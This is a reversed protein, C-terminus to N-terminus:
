KSTVGFGENIEMEYIKTEQPAETNSSQEVCDTHYVLGLSDDVYVVENINNHKGCVVCPLVTSLETKRLSQKPYQKTEM